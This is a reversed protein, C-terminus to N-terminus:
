SALEKIVSCNLVKVDRVPALSDDVLHGWPTAALPSRGM